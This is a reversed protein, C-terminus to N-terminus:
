GGIKESDLGLSPKTSALEEFLIKLDDFYSDSLSISNIYKCIYSRIAYCVEIFMVLHLVYLLKSLERDFGPILSVHMPTLLLTDGMDKQDIVESLDDHSSLHAVGTLASYIRRYNENLIKIQPSKGDIMSGNLLNRMNTLAEFEQRLLCCAQAYSCSFISNEVVILGVFYSALILEFRSRNKLSNDCEAYTALIRGDADVMLQDDNLINAIIKDAVCEIKMALEIEKNLSLKSFDDCASLKKSISLLVGSLYLRGNGEFKM